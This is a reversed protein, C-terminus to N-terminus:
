LLMRQRLRPLQHLRAYPVRVMDPVTSKVIRLVAMVAVAVFYWRVLAVRTWCPALLACLCGVLILGYIGAFTDNLALLVTPESTLVGGSSNAM